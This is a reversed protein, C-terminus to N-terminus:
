TNGPEDEKNYLHPFLDLSDEHLTGVWSNLPLALVLRRARGREGPGGEQGVSSTWGLERTLRALVALSLGEWGGLFLFSTRDFCTKQPHVSSVIAM